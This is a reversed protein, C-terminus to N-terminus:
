DIVRFIAKSIRGPDCNASNSMVVVGHNSAPYLDMQTKTEDQAGNHWIKLRQGQGEVVVGLGYSTKKGDQLTQPTWMQQTTEESLLERNALAIAFRAFDKINSKYGGAGHKWFHAQDPVQKTFGLQRTYGRVWDTQQQYAVDLQFSSMGLPEIIRERLQLELPEKGAAQVVASLLVYAHSSYETKTGPSFILPSRIFRKIAERPDLQETETPITEAPVIKGNSYHPIGSQHCLLQRTTLPQLASPLEPLYTSIPSDLDLQQAQVLQLAAVAILPKSNSAWNFVSNETVPKQAEVDASGYGQTYVIKGERIVGIAVGVIQQEKIEAQVAQDVAEAKAFTSQANCRSGSIATFVIASVIIAFSLPSLRLSPIM